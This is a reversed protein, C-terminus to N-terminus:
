RQQLLTGLTSSLTHVLVGAPVVAMGSDTALRDGTRGHLYCAIVAADSPPYGQALFATLMGTLVDGMGGSAMAPNGSPNIRVTGDRLAIFTYRNKLVIILQLAMAQRRATLVRDWWNDHAGFLRDFEKMHPTLISNAPLKDILSTNTSLFTLADADIVIPKDSNALCDK